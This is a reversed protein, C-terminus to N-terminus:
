ARHSSFFSQNENEVLSLYWFDMKIWHSGINKYWNNRDNIFSNKVSKLYESMSTEVRDIEYSIKHIQAKTGKLDTIQFFECNTQEWWWSYHLIDGVKYKQRQILKQEKLQEKYNVKQVFLKNQEDIFKNKYQELKELSLFKYYKLVKEKKLSNISIIKLTILNEDIEFKFSKKWISLNQINM